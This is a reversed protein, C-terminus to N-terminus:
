AILFEEHKTIIAGLTLVAAVVPGNGAVANDAREDLLRRHAEGNGRRDCDTYARQVRLRVADAQRGKPSPLRSQRSGAHRDRLNLRRARTPLRVWCCDSQRLTM